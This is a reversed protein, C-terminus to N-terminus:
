RRPRRRALLVVGIALAALLAGGLGSFLVTPLNSQEPAATALQERDAASQRYAEALENGNGGRAVADLQSVATDDRGTFYADLGRRYLRDADGLAPTVGAEALLERAATVPVVARNAGGAGSRDNTLVGVVRGAPDLAVGGHSYIGIDDGIRFLPVPGQGTDTATVQVTKSRLTYTADRFDADVTHYGAVAVVGGPTLAAADGLEVAPLDPRAVKVLALDGADAARTRVVEGAIAPTGTLGGTAQNLQVFVQSSPPRDPEKGTFRTGATRSRVWGDLAGSTLKKGAVLIRGLTYLARERAVPEDPAVCQGNTLVHGAPDVVFGSCRRQFTVPTPNLLAGTRGDRLYGNFVAEVFVLGPAATALAREQASYPAAQSWPRFGAAPTVTPFAGAPGAPSPTDAGRTVAWAALGGGAALVVLTLAAVGLRLGTRPRPPPSPQIRRAPSAFPDHPPPDAFGPHAAPPEAPATAVVPSGTAHAAWVPPAGSGPMGSVPAGSAPVASSPTGSVPVGSAPQGSAPVASAPVGSTPTGSTPTGPTTPTASTAPTAPTPAPTAGRTAPDGVPELHPSRLPMGLLGFLKDAANEVEAPYAVWPRAAAFDANVYRPGGPTQALTDAANTFAERWPRDAAAAGELVAITLLRDQGDVAWWVSGVQCVGSAETFRYPGEPQM